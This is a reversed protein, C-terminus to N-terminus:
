AGAAKCSNPPSGIWCSRIRRRCAPTGSIRFPRCSAAGSTGCGCDPERGGARHASSEAADALQALALRRGSAGAFPPVPEYTKLAANQLVSPVGPEVPEGYDVPDGRRLLYSVAPEDNDTLVRVHPKPKLKGRQTQLDAQLTAIKTRLEPYKEQLEAPSPPKALVAARVADRDSAPAAAVKGGAVPRSVTREGERDTGEVERDRSRLPANHEATEKREADLALDVERQNPTKWEYPNYAAQLIASLRYYDRQPIPDYKHNHCRACGVTVGMVSSTLVEVEDAVINMRESILGRENSNTPDPTTRLFGTAAIRDIMEQDASRQRKGITRCRM